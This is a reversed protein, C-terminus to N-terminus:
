AINLIWRNHADLNKKLISLCQDLNLPRESPKKKLCMSILEAFEKPTHTLDPSNRKTNSRIEEISLGELRSGFPCRANLIHYILAGLSWIESQKSYDYFSNVSPDLYEPNALLSKSFNNLPGYINIDIIKPTDIYMIRKILINNISIDRHLIDCEHLKKFGNLIKFIIIKIRNYTLNYKILYKFLELGNYTNMSIEAENDELTCASLYRVFYRSNESTLKRLRCVLDQDIVANEPIQETKKFM